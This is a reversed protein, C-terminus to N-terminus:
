KNQLHTCIVTSDLYKLKCLLYCQTRSDSPTSVTRGNPYLLTYTSLVQLLTLFLSASKSSMDVLARFGPGMGKTSMVAGHFNDKRTM